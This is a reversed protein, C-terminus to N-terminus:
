TIKPPSRFSNLNLNFQGIELEGDGLNFPRGGFITLGNELNSYLNSYFMEPCDIETDDDTTHLELRDGIANEFFRLGSVYSANNEFFSFLNETQCTIFGVQYRTRFM